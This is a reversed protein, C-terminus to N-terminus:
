CIEAKQDCIPAYICRACKKPNAQFPDGLAYLNIADVLKEFATQMPADDEPLPVPHSKNTDMSYLRLRKVTYDMERLCHYQAYLQFIYGDYLTDIRKKRETLLGVETDFIDIKGHLKYRESYVAIGQLVAKRTSYTKADISQHAQRGSIQPQDQYTLRDRNGYLRHFYISRPCFTFDNLFSIPIYAEM